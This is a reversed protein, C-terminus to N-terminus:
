DIMQPDKYWDEVDAINGERFAKELAQVEPGHAAIWNLFANIHTRALRMDPTIREDDPVQIPQGDVFRIM